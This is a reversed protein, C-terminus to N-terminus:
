LTPTAKPKEAKPFLPEPLPKLLGSSFVGRIKDATLPMFPDLLSAIELLNAVLYALVERLHEEDNEKAIVWPKTEEIYQNLGRVQEWVEDLARDFHCKEL